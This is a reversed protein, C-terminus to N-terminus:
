FAYIVNFIVSNQKYSQDAVDSVKNSYQYSLTTTLKRSLRYGTSLTVGYRKYYPNTNIPSEDTADEMFLTSSLALKSNITWSSNYSLNNTLTLEGLINLQTQRSFSLTQTYYTNMRNTISVVYNTDTSGANSNLTTTNSNGGSFSGSRSDSLSYGAHLTTYQTLRLDMFPGYNYTTMNQGPNDPYNTSLASAGFGVSLLSFIQSVGSFSIQDTSNDLSNLNPSTGSLSTYNMAIMNGHEYGLSFSTKSNMEWTTKVGAINNFRRFLAVNSLTGDTGPDDQVSFRDYLRTHFHGTRVLFSFESDPAITLGSDGTNLESHQLYRRTGLNLTFGITTVDTQSKPLLQLESVADLGIHPHLIIDSQVPSGIGSAMNINDNYEVSMGSTLTFRVPGAKVNFYKQEEQGWATAGFLVAVALLLSAAALVVKM